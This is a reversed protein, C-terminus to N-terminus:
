FPIDLTTFGALDAAKPHMIDDAYVRAVGVHTSTTQSRFCQAPATYNLLVKSGDDATFGIMLSYSHLFTGDTRLHRTHSEAQRSNAWARAVNRNDTRNPMASEM